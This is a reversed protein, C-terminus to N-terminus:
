KKNSIQFIALKLVQWCIKATHETPSFGQSIQHYPHIYNRFDRLSHSFKKVDEDLFGIEKAVDIFNGLNWKDFSLVKGIKDKPSSKASNFDKINNSAVGYLIGELTSGSIFIASLSAKSNLNKEIERLRENLISTIVSDFNLNSLNVETFERKLFEYESNIPSYDKKIESIIDVKNGHLRKVINEVAVRQNKPYDKELYDGLLIQNDIYELLKFISRAVLSDNEIEWFARLVKAKSRGKLQYKDSYIDAGVETKFFDEFTRNSFDLVYGDIKFLKELLQKEIIKLNAM